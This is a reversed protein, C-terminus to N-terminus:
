AANRLADVERRVALQDLAESEIRRVREPSLGLRRAVATLTQPEDHGIGYRLELVERELDSLEALARRVTESRLSLELAEGAPPEDAAFLDGFRAGNEEGVPRDLSTVARAASRVRELHAPSLRAAEAIEDETPQRDLTQRLEREVRAVKLEHQFVDAPLQITRARSQLGRQVM